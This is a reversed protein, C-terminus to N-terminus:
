FEVSFATLKDDDITGGAKLDLNLDLQEVDKEQDHKEHPTLDFAIEKKEKVVFDTTLDSEKLDSRPTLDSTMEALQRHQVKDLAALRTQLMRLDEQHQEELENDFSSQNL